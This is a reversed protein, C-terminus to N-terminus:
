RDPCENSLDSFGEHEIAFTLKGQGQNWDIHFVYISDFDNGPWHPVVSADGGSTAILSQAFRELMVHEWAILVTSNRYEPSTLARQLEQIDHFGIQTEVPLGLRIATPEVTALPRVYSYTKGQDGEHMRASPNPALIADPKSFRSALVKPLALARNLGKCSLQGLGGHQLESHRFAIITEHSEQKSQANASVGVMQAAFVM